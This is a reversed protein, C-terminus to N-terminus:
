TCLIEIEGEANLSRELETKMCDASFSTTFVDAEKQESSFQHGIGKRGVYYVTGEPIKRSLIHNM